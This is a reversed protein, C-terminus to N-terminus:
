KSLIRGTSSNPLCLSQVEFQCLLNPIMSPSFVCPGLCSCLSTQISPSKIVTCYVVSVWGQSKVTDYCKIEGVHNANILM